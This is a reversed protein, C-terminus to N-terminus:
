PINKAVIFYTGPAIIYFFFHFIITTIVVFYSQSDRSSSRRSPLIYLLVQRYVISLIQLLLSIFLSLVSTAASRHLVSRVDIKVIPFYLILFAVIIFGLGILTTQIRVKTKTVSSEGIHQWLIEQPQTIEDAFFHLKQTNQGLLKSIHFNLKRVENIKLAKLM